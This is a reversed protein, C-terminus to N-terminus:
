FSWQLSRPFFGKDEVGEPTKEAVEKLSKGKALDLTITIYQTTDRLLSSWPSGEFPTQAESRCAESEDAMRLLFLAKLFVPGLFLHM